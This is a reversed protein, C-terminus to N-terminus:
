YLLSFYLLSSPFVSLDSQRFDDLFADSVM